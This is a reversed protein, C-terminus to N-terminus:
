DMLRKDYLIVKAMMCKQWQRLGVANVTQYVKCNVSNIVEALSSIYDNNNETRRNTQRNAVKRM